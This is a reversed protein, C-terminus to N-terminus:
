GKTELALFRAIRLAEVRRQQFFPALLEAAEAPAGGGKSLRSALWPQWQEERLIGLLPKGEDAVRYTQRSSLRKEGVERTIAELSKLLPDDWKFAVSVPEGSRKHLSLAVADRGADRKAKEKLLSEAEAFLTGAPIKTHAYLVAGSITLRAPDIGRATMEQRYRNRVAIACSLADRPDALFLVDEGGAYILQPPTVGQLPEPLDLAAVDLGASSTRLSAAFASLAASVNAQYQELDSGPALHDGGLTEGLRDGDMSVIAFYPRGEAPEFETFSVYIQRKTGQAYPVMRKTACALCLRGQDLRLFPELATGVAKAAADAWAKAVRGRDGDPLATREGCVACKEGHQEVYPFPRYMRSAAFQAAAKRSSETYDDSEETWSWACTLAQLTVEDPALGDFGARGLDRCAQEVMRRWADRVAAEASGAIADAADLPVRCVFRNPLGELAAGAAITPFIMSGGRELVHEIATRTLTSLVTSGAWLDAVRRAQAIFTHVPGLSFTLLAHPSRSMSM